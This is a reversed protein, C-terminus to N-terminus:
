NYWMQSYRRIDRLFLSLKKVFYKRLQGLYIIVEYIATIWGQFIPGFAGM